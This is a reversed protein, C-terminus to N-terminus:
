KEGIANDIKTLINSEPPTWGLYENKNISYCIYPKCEKLLGKLRQNEKAVDLANFEECWKKLQQNEKDEKLLSNLQMNLVDLMKYLNKNEEEKAQWEEYSPVPALVEIIEDNQYNNWVRGVKTRIHTDEVVGGYITKIYYKGLELEGKKWQETLSTDNPCDGSACFEDSYNCDKCNKINDNNSM